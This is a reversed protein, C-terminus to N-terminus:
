RRQAPVNPRWTWAGDVFRAEPLRTWAPARVRAGAGRGAGRGRAHRAVGGGLRDAGRFADLGADRHREHAAHRPAGGCPVADDHVGRGRSGLGLGPRRPVRRTRWLHVGIVLAALGFGVEDTIPLALVLSAAAATAVIREWWLLPARGYGISAMGWLGVALAAKFIIYAVAVWYGAGVLGKVPQLMLTPDYVAM